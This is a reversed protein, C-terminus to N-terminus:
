QNVYKGKVYKGNVYKGNLFGGRHWPVGGTSARTRGGARFSPPTITNPCPAPSQTASPSTTIRRQKRAPRAAADAADEAEAAVEAAVERSRRTRVGAEPAGSPTRVAAESDDLDLANQPREGGLDRAPEKGNKGGGRVKASAGRALEEARTSPGSPSEPFLGRGKGIRTGNEFAESGYGVSELPRKKGGGSAGDVESGGGRGDSEVPTRALAEAWSPPAHRPGSANLGLENELQKELDAALRLAARANRANAQMEAVNTAPPEADSSSSLRRGNAGEGRAAAKQNRNAEAFRQGGGKTSKENFLGAVHAADHLINETLDINVAHNLRMAKAAELCAKSVSEAGWVVQNKITIRTDSPLKQVLDNLIRATLQMNAITSKVFPDLPLVGSLVALVNSSEDLTGGHQGGKDKLLVIEVARKDLVRGAEGQAVLQTEMDKLWATVFLGGMSKAGDGLLMERLHQPNAENTKPNHPILEPKDNYFWLFVRIIMSDPLSSLLITWMPLLRLGAKYADRDPYSIHRASEVESKTETTAELLCVLSQSAYPLVHIGHRDLVMFDDLDCRLELQEDAYAEEKAFGGVSGDRYEKPHLPKKDRMCCTWRAMCQFNFPDREDEDLAWKSTCLLFNRLDEVEERTRYTPRTHHKLVFQQREPYKKTLEPTCNPGFAISAHYFRIVVWEPLASLLVRWRVLQIYIDKSYPQVPRHQSRPDIHQPLPVVRAPSFAPADGARPPSAAGKPAAMAVAAAKSLNPKKGLQSRKVRKRPPPTEPTEKDKAAAEKAASAAAQEAAVQAAVEAEEAEAAAEEERSKATAVQTAAEAAAEGEAAAAAAAAAEAEAAAGLRMKRVALSEEEDEEDDDDRAAEAAEAEQEDEAAKAADAARAADEAIDAVKKAEKAEVEAEKAKMAAEDAVASKLRNM